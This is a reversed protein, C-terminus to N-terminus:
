EAGPVLRVARQDLEELLFRARRRYPAPAGEWILFLLAASRLERFCATAYVLDRMIGALCADAEDSQFRVFAGWTDRELLRMTWEFYSCVLEARFSADFM